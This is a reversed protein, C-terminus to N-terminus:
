ETHIVHEGPQRRLTSLEVRRADKLAPVAKGEDLFVRQHAACRDQQGRARQVAFPLLPLTTFHLPSFRYLILEIVWEFALYLFFLIRKKYNYAVLILSPM